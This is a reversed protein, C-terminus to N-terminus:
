ILSYLDLLLNFLRKFLFNINVLDLELIVEYILLTGTLVIILVVAVKSWANIASKQQFQQTENLKILGSSVHNIKESLNEYM